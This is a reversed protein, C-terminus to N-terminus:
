HSYHHLIYRNVRTQNLFVFDIVSKLSLKLKDNDCARYQFIYPIELNQKGIRSAIQLGKLLHVGNTPLRNPMLQNM